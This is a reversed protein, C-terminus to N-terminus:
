WITTTTGLRALTGGKTAYTSDPDTTSVQEQEQVPETPNKQELEELYQRVSPPTADV